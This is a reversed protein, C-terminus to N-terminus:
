NYPRRHCGNQRKANRKRPSPRSGQRKYLTVFRWGYNKLCEILDLGKFRNTVDVRYDYPIQSLDNRFPRTTKGVKKLKLRFKETLLEHDSGCHAGPRTKASQISSRWRQSCLIYDIQNQHQGDPSTWMYLKRKHQQFLPNAIVLANLQLVTNAKARSWETNWPWIQRNSWTNKSKRSKCELGRYHFPCRKQPTLELLDQLDEYFWEVEGEETDSTPACVQIVTINFPKGQFNVSIMRDNKLNYGLVANRARKNDIIAVGNRRLSVQECYYIYHDDSNM